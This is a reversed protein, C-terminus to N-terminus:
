DTIIVCCTSDVSWSSVSAVFMQKRLCPINRGIFVVDTVVLDVASAPSQAASITVNIDSRSRAPVAIETTVIITQGKHVTNSVTANDNVPTQSLTM